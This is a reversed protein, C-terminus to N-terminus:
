VPWRGLMKKIISLTKDILIKLGISNNINMEANNKLDSEVLDLTSRESFFSSVTSTENNVTNNELIVIASTNTDFKIDSVIEAVKKDGITEQFTFSSTGGNSTIVNISVSSGDENVYSEKKDVPKDSYVTFVGNSEVVKGDEPSKYIGGRNNGNSDAAVQPVVKQGNWFGSGCVSPQCVIVNIVVGASDVMAYTQCPDEPSCEGSYAPASVFIATSISLVISVFISKIKMTVGKKTIRKNQISSSM